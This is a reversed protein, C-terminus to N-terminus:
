RPPPASGPPGTPADVSDNYINIADYLYPAGSGMYAFGAMSAAFCGLSVTLETSADHDGEAVSVARGFALSSCLIGGIGVLFGGVTRRHYIRAAEEAQPVGEVADVLGGGLIGHEIMRGDRVYAIQGGSLVISLRRGARPTYSSSCGSALLAALVLHRTM